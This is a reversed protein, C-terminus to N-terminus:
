AFMAPLCGPHELLIVLLTISLAEPNYGGDGAKQVRGTTLHFIPKACGLLGKLEYFTM